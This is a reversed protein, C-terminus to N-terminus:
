IAANVNQKFVASRDTQSELEEDTITCPVANLAAGGAKEISVKAGSALDQGTYALAIM